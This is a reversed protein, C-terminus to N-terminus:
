NDYNLIRFNELIKLDTKLDIGIVKSKNGVKEFYALKLNIAKNNESHRLVGGTFIIDTNNYFNNKLNQFDLRQNETLKIISESIETKNKNQLFEIVENSIEIAKPNIKETTFYRNKNLLSTDSKNWVDNIDFFYIFNYNIWVLLYKM